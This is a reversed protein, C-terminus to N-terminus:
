YKSLWKDNLAESMEIDFLHAINITVGIVDALENALNKKAERSDIKKHARCQNRYILVAEALEGVEEQLKLLAFNEDVKVGHRKDYLRGIEIIKEELEKFEM